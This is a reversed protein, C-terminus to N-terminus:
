CRGGHALSCAGRTSTRGGWRAEVKASLEAGEGGDQCKLLRKLCALSPFMQASAGPSPGRQLPPRSTQQPDTQYRGATGPIGTLMGQGLEAAGLFAGEGRQPWLRAQSCPSARNPPCPHSKSTQLHSTCGPHGAGRYGLRWGLSGGVDGQEELTPSALITGKYAMMHGGALLERVPHSAAPASSPCPFSHSRLSPHAPHLQFLQWDALSPSVAQSFSFSLFFSFPSFFLVFGSKPQNPFWTRQPQYLIELGVGGPLPLRLSGSDCQLPRCLLGM